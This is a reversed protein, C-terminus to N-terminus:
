IQEADLEALSETATERVQHDEDRSLQLLTTRAANNGTLSLFHAADTRVQPHPSAALGAIDEVLDALLDDSALDELVAGVGIRVAFPTELDGALVLLPSLLEPSRRCAKIVLDLEGSDLRDRLYAIMGDESLAQTALEALEAQSHVGTLEFPGMRLWPVSRVGETRTFEPRQAINVVEMRGIRGQKVLEVLGSLVVPCHTCGTAIAVKVDPVPKDTM